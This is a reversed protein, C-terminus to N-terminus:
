RTSVIKKTFVQDYGQINLLYLGAPVDKISISYHNSGKNVKVQGQRMQHGQMNRLSYVYTGKKNSTISLNLNKNVPNEVVKVRNNLRKSFDVTKISSYEYSGDFDVQKIRYYYTNGAQVSADWFDYTQKEITTSNGEVQGINEWEGKMKKQVIFHSNNTESATAWKLHNKDFMTEAVFDIFEVPLATSTQNNVLDTLAAADNNFNGDNVGAIDSSKNFLVSKGSKQTGTAVRIKTSPSFNVASYPISLTIFVQQDSEKCGSKTNKANAKTHNSSLAYTSVQTVQSSTNSGDVNEVIVGNAGGKNELRIEYEFGENNSTANPDTNIGYKQDTDILFSYGFKGNPKDALRIRMLFNENGSEDTPYGDPDYIGIFYASQNSGADIVDTAGCGPSLDNDPESTKQYGKTWNGEFESFEDSSSFFSGNAVIDGDQDPDLAKVLSNTNNPEVISGQGIANNFTLAFAVAYVLLLKNFSKSKNM